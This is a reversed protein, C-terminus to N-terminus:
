RGRTPRVKCTSGPGPRAGSCSSLRVWSASPADAHLVAAGAENWQLRRPPQCAWPRARGRVTAAARREIIRGDLLDTILVPVTPEVEEAISDKTTEHPKGHLSGEVRREEVEVVRRGGACELGAPVCGLGIIALGAPGRLDSHLVNRDGLFRRDIDHRALRRARTEAPCGPGYNTFADVAKQFGGVRLVLEFRVLIPQGLHGDREVRSSGSRLLM